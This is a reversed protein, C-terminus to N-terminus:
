SNGGCLILIVFHCFHLNQFYLPAYTQAHKLKGSFPLNKGEIKLTQPSLDDLGKVLVQDSIETGYRM